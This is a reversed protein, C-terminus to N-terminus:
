NKVIEELPKPECFYFGQFEDINLKMLINFIEEDAVFEATTKINFNHSFEVLMKIIEKYKENNKINKVLSADIKIFDPYLSLVNVFNSYGSGFDDIAIKVNEKKVKQIFDVVLDFDMISESELIEFVVTKDKSKKELLEFILNRTDENAIDEFSLNISVPNDIRELDNFVKKIMLRSFSDYLKTEKMLELFFFPSYVKGEYVIRMLAEYKIINKNRDVICQYFPKIAKKELVKYLFQVKELKEKQFSVFKEDYLMYKKHFSRLAFKLATEATELLRTKINSAGVTINIKINRYIFKHNILEKLDDESVSKKLLIAFEDSGLRYINSYKKLLEDKFYLLVRDGFDFGYIDNIDSFDDIDILIISKFNKIDDILKNRNPLSTLSDYYYRKILENKSKEYRNKLHDYDKFIRKMIRKSLIYAIFFSIGSFLIILAFTVSLLEEIDKMIDQKISNINKIIQSYYFGKVLVFDYPRYITFYSIKEEYKRTLPNKFYYDEFCGEKEKLCEFYDKRYYNGKIDPKDMSIPMGVFETVPHYIIKAFVGSDAYWNIIKGMAIYSLKKYKYNISKIYNIIEKKVFEDIKQINFAVGIIKNNSIKREVALYKKEKFLVVLKKENGVKVFTQAIKPYVIEKSIIYFFMDDSSYTKLVELIKEKNNPFHSLITNLFTKLINESISYGSIRIEDIAKIITEMEIKLIKKQQEIIGKNIKNFEKKSFDEVFFFYVGGFLIMGFTFFLIPIIFIQNVSKKM